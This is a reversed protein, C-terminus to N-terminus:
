AVEGHARLPADPRHLEALLLRAIRREGGVRLGRIDADPGLAATWAARDGRVRVKPAAEPSGAEAGAEPGAGDGAIPARAETAILHGRRVTFRYRSETPDEHLILEVNAEPLDTGGALLVPMLRLLAHIDVQEGEQPESWARRLGWRALAGAIPLLERGADTLELEVRPPMEKFRTRTLLGARAMRHVYRDLVGASVGALRARLESLRVRGGELQTAILLTWNDGTM